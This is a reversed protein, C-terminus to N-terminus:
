KFLVLSFFLLVFDPLLASVDERSKFKDLLSGLFDLAVSPQNVPNSSKMFETYTEFLEGSVGEPCESIASFRQRYRDHVAIKFGGYTIYRPISLKTEKGDCYYNWADLVREEVAFASSPYLNASVLRFKEWVKKQEEIETTRKEFDFSGDENKM